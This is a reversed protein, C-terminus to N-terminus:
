YPLPKPSTPQRAVTILMEASLVLSRILQVFVLLLAGGTMHQEVRYYVVTALFPPTLMSPSPHFSVRTKDDASTRKQEPGNKDQDPGGPPATKPGVAIEWLWLEEGDM